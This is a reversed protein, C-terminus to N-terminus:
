GWLVKAMIEENSVAFKEDFEGSEIRKMIGVLLHNIWSAHYTHDKVADGTYGEAIGELFPILQNKDIAMNDRAHNMMM